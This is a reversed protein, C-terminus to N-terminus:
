PRLRLPAGRLAPDDLQVGLPQVRGDPQVRLTVPLTVARVSCTGGSVACTFLQGAVRAPYPGPRTGAPALLPWRLPAPRAYYARRAPDPHPAGSLVGEHTSWPTTLTLRNPAERNLLFDRLAFTLTLTGPPAPNVRGAAGTVGTLCLLASVALTAAWGGPRATRARQAAAPLAAAPLPMRWLM